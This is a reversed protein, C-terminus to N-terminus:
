LYYLVDWGKFLFLSVIVHNKEGWCLKGDEGEQEQDHGVAGGAVPLLDRM